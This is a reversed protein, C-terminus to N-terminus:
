QPQQQQQREQQQRQEPEVKTFFEYALIVWTAEVAAQMKATPDLVKDPHVLLMRARYEGGQLSPCAARTKGDYLVILPWTNVNVNLFSHASTM